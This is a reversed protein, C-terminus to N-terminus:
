FPIEQDWEGQDFSDFVAADFVCPLIKAQHCFDMLIDSIFLYFDEDSLGQPTLLGRPFDLHKHLWGIIRSDLLFSYRTLGLSQWFNRSQKPGFGKLNQSVHRAAQTEIQYADPDPPQSRIALLQDRWDILREWGGQKELYDLNDVIQHPLKNTFRIGGVQRINKQALSFLDEATRCVSLSLPFPKRYLLRNIPSNPGSRQQSTM